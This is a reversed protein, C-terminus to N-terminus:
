KTKIFTYKYESDLPEFQRGGGVLFKPFFEVFQLRITHVFASLGSIATNFLHGGILVVLMLIFGVYPVERATRAMVNIAMALGGTVMGLAMLRLYSLVDGMYFITSFLNYCGMAIRGFWGGHRQSFLVILVAPVLAVKGFIGVTQESLGVKGGFLYLVIMNLMVIWVLKDFVAAAIDRRQLNHVFAAILGVMIHIYGLGISLLFFTMPKELPDFLMMSLRAKALWTWGFIQSLQQASDGFWGGTLAGAGLTLVSCSFLLWMLKKDGQMKRILWITLAIILIGYGADTLCLAFFIAFFPTLLATPDLEIHQPMGYLRTVVEFPRILRNNDIEVPVLEDEGPEIKSISSADFGSVIKELRNYDNKKVWGEFLVTHDTAPATIRAKERLVLNQYHDFLIGLKTRHSSLEAAITKQEAIQEDIQALEQEHGAILEAATGTLGEFSVADFDFGRLAKQVEVAIDRLCVVVCGYIHDTKGVVEVVAGLEVVKETAQALHQEPILGVLSAAQKLDTLQEVPTELNKWPRLLELRYICSERRSQLSTMTDQCQRAKDLLQLAEDSSVVETYKKDEIVARPALASLFGEKTQSHLSLFTISKGLKDVIEEIDRPRRAEAALEPWEKTVMAREANLIELIGGRQVADLLEKAQSRHSVIMVKRMQAIAM